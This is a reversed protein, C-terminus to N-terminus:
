RVMTSCSCRSGRPSLDGVQPVFEIIGAHRQALAVLTSLDVALVIESTGRHEVERSPIESAGPLAVSELPLATAPDPYVSKIM